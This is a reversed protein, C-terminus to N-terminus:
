GVVARVGCFGDEPEDTGSPPGGDVECIELPFGQVVLLTHHRKRQQLVQEGNTASTAHVFPKREDLAEDLPEGVPSVDRNTPVLRAAENTPELLRPHDDRRACVALLVV